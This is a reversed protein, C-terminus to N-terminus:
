SVRKRYCRVLCSCLSLHRQWERVCSAMTMVRVITAQILFVRGMLITESVAM